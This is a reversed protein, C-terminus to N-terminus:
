LGVFLRFLMYGFSLIFVPYEFRYFPPRLLLFFRLPLYFLTFCLIAIYPTAIFSPSWQQLTLLLFCNSFFFFVAYVFGRTLSLWRYQQMKWGKKNSTSNAVIGIFTIFYIGMGPIFGTERVGMTKVISFPVLWWFFGFIALFASLGVCAKEFKNMSAGFSTLVDDDAYMSFFSFCGLAVAGINLIMLLSCSLALHHSQWDMLWESCSVSLLLMLIDPLFKDWTNAFSNPIATDQTPM